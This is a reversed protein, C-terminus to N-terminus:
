TSCWVSVSGALASITAVGDADTHVEESHALSADRFALGARHTQMKIPCAYAIPKFWDAVPSSLSHGRQSDHNDVFVLARDDIVFNCPDLVDVHEEQIKKRVV